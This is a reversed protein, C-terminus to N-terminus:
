EKPYDSLEDDASAFTVGAYVDALSLRIDIQPLEVHASLENAATFLWTGDDRRTYCEISPARASVICYHKLTEIDRYASFKYTRDFRETKPSSVEFTAVPNAVTEGLRCLKDLEVGGCIVSADPYFYSNKKIARVRLNSDFVRCPKGKLGSFLSGILNAIILSHDVTGGSMDVVVGDHYEHRFERHYEAELYEQPSIWPPTKGTPLATM